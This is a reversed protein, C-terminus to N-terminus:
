IASRGAMNKLPNISLMWDYPAVAASSVNPSCLQEVSSVSIVTLDIGVIHCYGVQGQVCEIVSSIVDGFPGEWNWLGVSWNESAFAHEVLGM